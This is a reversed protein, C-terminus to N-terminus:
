AKTYHGPCIETILGRVSLSTILAFLSSLSINLAESIEDISSEKGYLFAIIKKEDPTLAPSPTTNNEDPIIGIDIMLQKPSIAPVAGQYILANCGASLPNNLSGPVAFLSKNQELAYSATILSGSKRKAEIVLVADSLASIIRNRIPFHYSLAPTGPEFESIIGGGSSIINEYLKRNSAPYCIDPGCGLVAFTPTGGLLAGEHACSDTGYAMGSIIQVGNESLAKAFRVAENRGYASCARAGVIGVSHLGPDPLAGCVYLCEPMREYNRLIEPYEPSDKTIKRIEM